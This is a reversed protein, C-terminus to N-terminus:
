KATKQTPKISTKDMPMNAMQCQCPFEQQWGWKAFTKQAVESTLFEVFHKAEPQQKGKDTLVVGMDRYVTYPQEIPVLDAIDANAIQWINWVLWADISSDEQWLKKAEGSNVSEPLLLRSRLAQVDAINGRRGAVDEWLGTQGSGAVAIIKVDKQILDAFGTIKKPNGKRVLIASPRLYLPQAAKIDFQNPMAKAFDSMMHEAGSYIVDADQKAQELWKATPGFTLQVKTGTEAQYQKVIDQMAPAPGGPGYVHLVTPETSNAMASLAFMAVSGALFTKIISM